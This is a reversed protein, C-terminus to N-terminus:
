EAKGRVAIWVTAQLHAPPIGADTAVREIADALIDYKAKTLSGIEAGSAYVMWSDVVVASDNGTLALYFSTVKRGGLVSSPAEGAVIRSAKDYNAGLVGWPRPADDGELGLIWRAGLVNNSWTAQPSLVAVVAATQRRSYGSAAAMIRVTRRANRYWAAGADRIEVPADLYHRALSLEIGDVDLDGARIM